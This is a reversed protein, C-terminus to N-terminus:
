YNFGCQKHNFGSAVSRIKDMFKGVRKGQCSNVNYEYIITLQNLPGARLQNQDAAPRLNEPWGMSKSKAGRTRSKQSQPSVLRHLNSDVDFQDPLWGLM